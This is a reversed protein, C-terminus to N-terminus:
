TWRSLRRPQRLAWALKPDTEITWTWTTPRPAWSRPARRLRLLADALRGPLPPARPDAAPASLPLRRIPLTRSRRQLGLLLGPAPAYSATCARSQRQGPDGRRHRRRRGRDDPDSQGAPRSARRGGTKRGKEKSADESVRVHIQSMAAKRITEHRTRKPRWRRGPKREVPCSSTPDSIRDAYLGAEASWCGASAEPIVKLHIYGRFDHTRACPAPWGRGDAEM